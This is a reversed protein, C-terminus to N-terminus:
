NDDQLSETLNWFDSPWEEVVHYNKKHEVNEDHDDIRHGEAGRFCGLQNRIPDLVLSVHWSANFVSSIVLKDQASLFIGFNLHTHYWGVIKLHYKDAQQKAQELSEPAIKVSDVTQHEADTIIAKRIAVFRINEKKDEFPLGALIGACEASHKSSFIYQKAHDQISSWANKDLLVVFSGSIVQHAPLTCHPFVRQFLPPDQSSGFLIRSNM